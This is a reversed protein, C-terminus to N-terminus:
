FLRLQGSSTEEYESKSPANEQIKPAATDGHENAADQPKTPSEAQAMRARFKRLNWLDTFFMPTLWINETHLPLIGKKDLSVSPHVLTDGVVVYGPCGLLSLQIYCMCATVFDIDQAVFLVDRQYNIKKDRRVNAFAILTAGAGCACDNVSIFGDSKIKDAIDDGYTMEAMLRCVSYPTFFQGKHENGLGLEMYIEGLFDKDSDLEMGEIILALIQPFRQVTNTDYNNVISMYRKEREVANISDVSNSIAIASMIIFDSWLQGLSYKGGSLDRFAKVIARQKDSRLHSIKAMATM